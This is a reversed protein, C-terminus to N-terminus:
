GDLLFELSRSGKSRDRGSEKLLEALWQKENDVDTSATGLKDERLGVVYELIEIAEDWRGMADYTGALNNYVGLTNPHHPGYVTELIGRAEEFLDAAEKFLEVQICALGLQNLTIGFVGSKMEGAIRFKSIAVKLYDYSDAYCGMMYYLVGIQAEVGAVSTVQGPVKGYAKLSKKLLDLARELENM